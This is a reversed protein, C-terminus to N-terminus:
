SLALACQQHRMADAGCAMCILDNHEVLAPNDLAATVGFQECLTTVVGLQLSYLPFACFVFIKLV